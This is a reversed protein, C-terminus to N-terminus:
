GYEPDLTFGIWMISFLLSEKKKNPNSEVRKSFDRAKEELDDFVKIIQEKSLDTYTEHENM